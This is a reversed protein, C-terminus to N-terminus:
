KLEWVDINATSSTAIGALYGNSLDMAMVVREGPQIEPGFNAAAGRTNTVADTSAAVAYLRITVIGANQILLVKGKLLDGTTNFATTAQANTKSTTTADITGLYLPKSNLRLDLVQGTPVTAALASDGVASVLRLPSAEATSLVHGGISLGLVAVSLAVVFAARTRFTKM